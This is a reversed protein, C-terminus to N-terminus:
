KAIKTVTDGQRVIYLGPTTPSKVESGKLDFYRAPAEDPNVYIDEIGSTGNWKGKFTVEIPMNSSPDTPDMHWIVHIQMDLEREANETGEVIADAIIEGEALSINEAKGNFNILDSGANQTTTVNPVYINGLSEEPDGSLSFNDLRFDCTGVGTATIVVTQNEVPMPDGFGMDIGVTGVYTGGKVRVDEASATSVGIITALALATAKILKM